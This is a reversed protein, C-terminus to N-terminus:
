VLREYVTKYLEKKIDELNEIFRSAMLFLTLSDKGREYAPQVHNQDIVKFGNREYFKIRRSAMEGYHIPETELLVLQNNKILFDLVKEGIKKGRNEPFIEFHEIFTADNLNWTVIYGVIDDNLWITNINAKYHSVLDYFQEESRREAPPFAVTYHEYIINLISNEKDTIPQLTIAM